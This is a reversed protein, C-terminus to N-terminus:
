LASTLTQKATRERSDLLAPARTITSLILASDATRALPLRKCDEAVVDLKEQSLTPPHSQHLPLLNRCFQANMLTSKAISVKSDLSALAPIHTLLIRAREATKALNMKASMSTSKAIKEKTDLLASANMTTLVMLALPDTRALSLHASTLMSKANSEPSVTQANAATDTTTMKSNFALEM